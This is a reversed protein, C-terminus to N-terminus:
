FSPALVLLTFLSCTWLNVDSCKRFNVAKTGCTSKHLLPTRRITIQLVSVLQGGVATRFNFTGCNCEVLNFVSKITRELVALPRFKALKLLFYLLIWYLFILFAPTFFFVQLYCHSLFLDKFINHTKLLFWHAFNLIINEYILVLKLLYKTFKEVTM